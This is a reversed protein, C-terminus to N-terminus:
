LLVLVRSFIIKLYVYKMLNRKITEKVFKLEKGTEAKTRLRLVKKLEKGYSIKVNREKLVIRLFRTM